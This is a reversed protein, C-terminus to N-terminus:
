KFAMEMSRLIGDPERLGLAVIQDARAQTDANAYIRLQPANGSPRVHAVDGNDFWIRVGDLVNIRIPKGFGDAKTFFRTISESLEKSVTSETRGDTPTLQKIIARSAAVPFHDILGARGFRKPLVDWSESLTVNARIAAGFSALIPLTSDRSPLPALPGGDLDMKSGVLFGGNAEWGVIRSFAKNQRQNDISAVVYPSGIRTKEITIGIQEAYKEVADNTSIPVSAADAKLYGAAIVGLLDGPLFKVRPSSDKPLVATVLPRDSDGDTSVLADVPGGKAEAEDVYGELLKIEDDTINETDIPVFTKSKGCKVVEAGLAILIKPLLDRGVASHQYVLIRKGTLMGRPFANVYRAVYENEATPNVQPLLPEDKLMGNEDFSSEDEDKAYEEARIKTVHEVIGAEDTKLVEGRSKNIKIGNRDFPIHSGSVMVGCQRKKLARLVLAPTPIKGGNEVSCDSDEIARVCARMIRDSSPRLDQALVVGSGPKTDGIAFLYALAGKINIYTELDTIDTVLGRLGSTGFALANPTYKLFSPPQLTM